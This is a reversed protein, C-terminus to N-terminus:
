ARGREAALQEVARQDVKGRVTRPLEDVLLLDRPIKYPALRGACHLRVALPTVGAGRPVVVAILKQGRFPCPVGLVSAAGVGPMEMLVREVEEPNVKRGAVNITASLRGTLVLNGDPDFRGLDPTLFGDRTFDSDEVLGGGAAAYGAGVAASRVHIRAGRAAAGGDEQLEVLVGPLPKGVTGTAAATESADYAIGGTESSGYFSHIKMGFRALFGAITDGTITAGASILLRLPPLDAPAMRHLVHEFMFPAGPFVKIGVRTVDAGLAPPIFGHRLVLPCGYAFLPVVLNGLGYSHSLPISALHVDAPTIGMAHVIAQCDEWLAAETTVVAKPMGTSGSTLKLLAAEPYRWARSRDDGVIMHLGCALSRWSPDLHGVDPGTIVARAGFQDALDVAEALPSDGDLPLLVVGSRLCALFLAFFCSHNGALAVLCDGPVLGAATLADAVVAAERHVAEFTLERGESAAHVAVASGRKRRVRDFREQIPTHM